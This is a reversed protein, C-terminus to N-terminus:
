TVQWLWELSVPGLILDQLLIHWVWVCHISWKMMSTNNQLPVNMMRPSYGMTTRFPAKWVGWERVVENQLSVWLFSALCFFSATNLSCDWTKTRSSLPEESDTIRRCSKLWWLLCCLQLGSESVSVAQAPIGDRGLSWTPLNNLREQRLKGM